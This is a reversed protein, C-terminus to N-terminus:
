EISIPARSESANVYASSASTPFHIRHAIKMRRARGNESIWNMKSGFVIIVPVPIFQPAIGHPWIATRATRPKMRENKM